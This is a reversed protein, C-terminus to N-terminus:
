IRPPARSSWSTALGRAMGTVGSDGAVPRARPGHGGPVHPCVASWTDPTATAQTHRASGSLRLWDRLEDQIAPSSKATGAHVSSPQPAPYGSAAAPAVAAGVGLVALLVALLFRSWGTRAQARV